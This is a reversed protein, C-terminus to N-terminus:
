AGCQLRGGLVCTEDCFDSDENLGTAPSGAVCFDELPTAKIQVVACLGTFDAFGVAGPLDAAADCCDQGSPSIFILQQLALDVIGIENSRYFRARPGCFVNRTRSVVQTPQPVVLTSQITVTAATSTSTTTIPSAVITSTTAAATISVATGSQFVTSTYVATVTSTATVRPRITTRVTVTRTRTGAVTTPAFRVVRRCYVRKGRLRQSERECNEPTIKQGPRRDLVGDDEDRAQLDDEEGDDEGAVGRPLAVPLTPGPPNTFTTSTTTFTGPVTEIVFDTQTPTFAPAQETIVPVTVTFITPTVTQTVAPVNETVRTTSITAVVETSTRPRAVTITSKVVPWTTITPRITQPGLSSTRTQTGSIRVTYCSTSTSPGAEVLSASVAVLILTAFSSFLM